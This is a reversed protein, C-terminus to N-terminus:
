AARRYSHSGELARALEVLSLVNHVPLFEDV